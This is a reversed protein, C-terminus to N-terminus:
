GRAATPYRESLIEHLHRSRSLKKSDAEDELAEKIARTTFFGVPTTRTKKKTTKKKESM